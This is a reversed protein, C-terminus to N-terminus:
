ESIKDIQKSFTIRRVRHAWLVRKNNSRKTKRRNHALTSFEPLRRVRCARFM